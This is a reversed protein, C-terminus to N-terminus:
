RGNAYWDSNMDVICSQKDDDREEYMNIYQSLLDADHLTLTPLPDQKYYYTAQLESLRTDM